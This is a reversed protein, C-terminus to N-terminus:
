SLLIIVVQYGIDHNVIPRIWHTVMYVLVNVMYFEDQYGFSTMGLILLYHIVVEFSNGFNMFWSHVVWWSTLFGHNSDEMCSRICWLWICDNSYFVLIIINWVKVITLLTLIKSFFFSKYQHKLFLLMKIGQRKKLTDNYSISINRPM